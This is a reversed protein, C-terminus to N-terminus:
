CFIDLSGFFNINLTCLRNSSTKFVIIFLINTVIEHLILGLFIVDLHNSVFLIVVLVFHLLKYIVLDYRQSYAFTIIIIVIIIVSEIVLIILNTLNTLKWLYAGSWHNFEQRFNRLLSFWCIGRLHWLINQLRTVLIVGLLFLLKLITSTRYTLTYYLHRSLNIVVHNMLLFFLTLITHKLEM